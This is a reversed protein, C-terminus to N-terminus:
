YALMFNFNIIIIIIVYQDLLIFRKDKFIVNCTGCITVVSSSM